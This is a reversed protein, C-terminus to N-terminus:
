CIASSEKARLKISINEHLYAGLLCKYVWLSIGFNNQSNHPKEKTKRTYHDRRQWKHEGM